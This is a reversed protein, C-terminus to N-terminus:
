SITTNLEIQLEQFAKECFVKLEEALKPIEETGTLDKAKTEITSALERAEKMGLYNLSPKMKHAAQRVKEWDSNTVGTILSSLTEPTNKMFLKIFDKFFSENDESLEKIYELNTTRDHDISPVSINQDNIVQESNNGKNNQDSLTTIKKFLDDPEFPKSIYDNMGLNICKEKEEKNAHATMALVPTNKKNDPLNTRIERICEYGNMVPMEIDMLVVDFDQEKIKNIADEGNVANHITFNWDKMVKNIVLRNIDNDEVVLIQINEISSQQKVEEPQKFEALEFSQPLDFPISFTFTTGSGFTSDANIMGGQLEVLKKVISLGLGTGGFKRTIDDGAQTFMEFINSIKDHPIGIGTDIVMFKIMSCQENSDTVSATITVSGQDTFKIANNVLNNIIQSFRTPDGKILEPIKRDLNHELILNKEKAKGIFLECTTQIMENLSFLTSEFTMKEAEMKSLDLIDNIIVLLNDASKKVANLYTSQDNSLETKILLNTLSMIGHVPTRIEHSMSALFREKMKQTEQAINLNNKLEIEHNKHDTIDVAIGIFGGKAIGNTKEPIINLEFHRGAFELIMNFELGKAAEEFFSNVIPLQTTVEELQKGVIEKPNININEVGKGQFLTVKKDNDVAFLIIPTREIVAELKKETKELELTVQYNKKKEKSLRLAYRLSQGIGEATIKNKPIYDCAGQKMAKVAVTEDGHSTVMIVSADYKGTKYQNLFDIGTGGPLNFDIFICDFAIDRVALLGEALDNTITIEAKYGSSNISRVLQMQDVKDDDIVLIKLLPHEM